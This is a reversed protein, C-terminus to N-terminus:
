YISGVNDAQNAENSSRGGVDQREVRLLIGLYWQLVTPADAGGFWRWVDAREIATGETPLRSFTLGGHSRVEGVKMDRLRNLSWLNPDRNYNPADLLFQVGRNDLYGIHDIGDGTAYSLLVPDVRGDLSRVVFRSDLWYRVQVEQLAVIIPLDDPRGLRNFLEESFAGREEPGRM